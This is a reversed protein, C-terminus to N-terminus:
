ESKNEYQGDSDERDLDITKGCCKCILKEIYQHELYVGEIVNREGTYDLEQYYHPIIINSTKLMYCHIGKKCLFDLAVNAKLRPPFMNDETRNEEAWNEELWEPFTM